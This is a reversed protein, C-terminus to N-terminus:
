RVRAAESSSLTIPLEVRQGGRRLALTVRDGFELADRASVLAAFNPVPRGDIAEIVDGLVVRGNAAMETVRLGARAAPSGPTVGLVLVGEEDAGLLQRSVDDNASIGLTPRVYRGYAILRPVVRNITDVPMAFGIGAYAGSPSYIM